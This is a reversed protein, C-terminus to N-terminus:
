GQHPGGLRAGRERGAAPYGGRVQEETGPPVAGYTAKIESLQENVARDTENQTQEEIQRQVIGDARAAAEKRARERADAVRGAYDEAAAAAM